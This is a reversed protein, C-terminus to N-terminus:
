AAVESLATEFPEIIFEERQNITLGAITKVADPENLIAEKNIEEKTRVFRGLGAALLLAMVAEAGRVAVSPPTMRWKVEGSPLVAFKVRGDQTLEARHAECWGQVGATLEIIGVSHPTAQEEFRAKIVAMEDGMLAEIRARERVHRGIQAIAEVVADRSQLVGIAAPAKMKKAAKAM